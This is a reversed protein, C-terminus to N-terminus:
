SILRQERLPIWIQKKGKGKNDSLAKTSSVVKIMEMEEIKTAEKTVVERLVTIETVAEAVEAEMAEEKAV